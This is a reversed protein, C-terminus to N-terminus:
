WINREIVKAHIMQYSIDPNRLKNMTRQCICTYETLYRILQFIIYM